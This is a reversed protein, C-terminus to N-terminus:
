WHLESSKVIFHVKRGEPTGPFIENLPMSPRLPPGLPHAKANAELEDDDAIDVRHLDLFKSEIGAFTDPIEKKILKKLEDVIENKGVKVSFPVDEGLVLCLITYINSGSMTNSSPQHHYPVLTLESGGLWLTQSGAIGNVNGFPEMQFKANSGKLLM